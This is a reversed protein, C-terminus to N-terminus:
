EAEKEKEIPMSVYILLGEQQDKNAKMTVLSYITTYEAADDHVIVPILEAKDDLDKIAFRLDEVTIM